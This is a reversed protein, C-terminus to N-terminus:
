NVLQLQDFLNYIILQQDINRKVHECVCHRKYWCWMETLTNTITPKDTANNFVCSTCHFSNSDGFNQLLISSTYFDKCINQLIKIYCIHLVLFRTSLINKIEWKRIECETLTTSKQSEQPFDILTCDQIIPPRLYFISSLFYIFHHFFCKNSNRLKVSTSQFSAM